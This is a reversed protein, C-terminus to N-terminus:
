WAGGTHAMTEMKIFDVDSEEIRETPAQQFIRRTWSHLINIWTIITISKM